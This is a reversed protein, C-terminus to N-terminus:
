WIFIINYYFVFPNRKRRRKKDVSEVNRIPQLKEKVMILSPISKYFLYLKLKQFSRSIKVYGM